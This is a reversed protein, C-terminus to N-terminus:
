SADFWPEGASTTDTLTAEIATASRVDANTLVTHLIDIM